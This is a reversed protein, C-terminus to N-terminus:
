YNKHELHAYIAKLRVATLSKNLGFVTTVDLDIDFEQM